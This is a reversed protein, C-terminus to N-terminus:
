KMLVAVAKMERQLMCVCVCVCVSVCMGYKEKLKVPVGKLSYAKKYSALDKIQKKGHAVINLQIAKRLAMCKTHDELLLKILLFIKSPIKRSCAPHM